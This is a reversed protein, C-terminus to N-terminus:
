GGCRARPWSDAPRLRRPAPIQHHERGATGHAAPATPGAWRSPGRPGARRTRAQSSRAACQWRPARPDIWEPQLFDLLSLHRRLTRRLRHPKIPNFWGQRSFLQRPNKKVWSWSGLELTLPLFVGPRAAALHQAYVHDWLDGQITYARAQPEVRYVHHPQSGDLLDVLARLEPLQPMPRRTRAWPFWLRDVLGFGSHVDLAIAAPASAIGHAVWTVLAAAEPEMAAGAEGRYWPLWRALRQGGVLPTARGVRDGPANRMLDVGSGNARTGRALGVPNLAPLLWLRARDLVEHGARDWTLRGLLAALFALVVQTGIRELGHVGVVVILLPTDAATSGLELAHVRRRVGHDDVEALVRHRALPGAREVLEALADLEPVAAAAIM